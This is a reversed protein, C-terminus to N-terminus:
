DFAAKRELPMASVRAELGALRCADRALTVAQEGAADRDFTFVAVSAFRKLLNAHEVTFMTGLPAIVNSVGRAHQLVVDLCGEVVTASGTSSIAERAQHLGYLERSKDYVPTDPSHVYKPRVHNEAVSGFSRGFFGVVRGEVDIVPFMLRHCFREGHDAGSRARTLLGALEAADEAGHKKLFTPLGSPPAYGIGFAGSTGGLTLRPDVCSLHHPSETLREAFFTAALRNVAYLSERADNMLRRQPWRQAHTM